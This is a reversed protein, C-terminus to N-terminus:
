AIHILVSRDNLNFSQNMLAPLLNLPPPLHKLMLLFPGDKIIDKERFYYPPPLSHSLRGDGGWRPESTQKNTRKM